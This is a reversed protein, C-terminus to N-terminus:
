NERSERIRRAYAQEAEDSGLSSSVARLDALRGPERFEVQAPVERADGCAPQDIDAAVVVDPAFRRVFGGADQDGEGECSWWVM